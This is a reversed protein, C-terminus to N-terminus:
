IEKPNKYNTDKDFITLRVKVHLPAAYNAGRQLCERVDFPPEKFHYSVYDLEANESRSKIPFISKFTAHLGQNKRAEPPVEAQLFKRYSDIQIALLYPIEMIEPLTGFDKRWRKKEALSLSM